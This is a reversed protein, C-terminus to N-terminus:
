ASLPEPPVSCAGCKAMEGITPYPPLAPNFQICTVMGVGTKQIGVNALTNLSNRGATVCTTGRHHAARFTMARHRAGTVGGDWRELLQM